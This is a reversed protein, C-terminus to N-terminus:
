MLIKSFPNQGIVLLDDQARTIAVYLMNRSERQLHPYNSENPEILAVADFELGKVQHVNTAIIGPEFSFRNRHGLRIKVGTMRNLDEKLEMAQKPYRCILAILRSPDQEM